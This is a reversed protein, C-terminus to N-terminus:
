LASFYAVDNKEDAVSGCIQSSPGPTVGIPSGVVTNGQLNQVTGAEGYGDGDGHTTRVQINMADIYEGNAVLREDIDKNMKGATFSHKLEPM